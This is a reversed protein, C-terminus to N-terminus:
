LLFGKATIVVKGGVKVSIREDKKEAKLYLLSPRGVMYGQEVKVDVKDSGFYRYESLYGALCGNASGTAPDEYIGYYPAFVRVSLDRDPLYTEPSFVLIGKAELSDVLSHYKELSLSVNKLTDLNKLPVIIFPLGTSVEQIPFRGDIDKEDINLVEAMKETEVIEGFVPDNQEMWLIEPSSNRYFIEVEVSGAMLNLRIRNPKGELTEKALVYATGISPHGAFPIETKSTYIRVDFGRELNGGTVFTTESYNMENAIKQKEEDSLNEANLVVALQNGEYKKEAFVDVIFFANGGM